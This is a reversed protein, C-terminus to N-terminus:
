EPYTGICVGCLESCYTMSIFSSSDQVSGGKPPIKAVEPMRERELMRALGKSKALIFGHEIFDHESCSRLLMGM